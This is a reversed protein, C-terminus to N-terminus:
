SRKWTGCGESQFGKDSGLITVIARGRPNANAIIENLAGGFGRLRAHYCGDGGSSRYRGPAMDTGVIFTGDGFRTKSETIRSLDKTFTGCGSAEFGKDRRSITVVTPASTNTNAVIEEVSGGFGKLRAWYCGDSGERTRYTGPEIDERAVFQGDGDFSPKEVPATEAPAEVATTIEPEPQSGTTETIEVPTTEAAGVVTVTTPPAAATGTAASQKEESPVLAGIVILVVLIALAIAWWRKWWTKKTKGSTEVHDSV